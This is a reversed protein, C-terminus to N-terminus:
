AKAEDKKVTNDTAAWILSGVWGLVTWGFFLNLIFIANVNKHKRMHAIIAPAIYAMFLALLFFMTMANDFM